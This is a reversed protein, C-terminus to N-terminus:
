SIPLRFTDLLAILAPLRSCGTKEKLRRLHTYITNASLRRARSYASPSQGAHLALALHESLHQVPFAMDFRTGRTSFPVIRGDPTRLDFGDVSTLSAQQVDVVLGTEQHLTPECGALVGVSLLLGLVLATLRGAADGNSPVGPVPNRKMVRDALPRRLWIGVSVLALFLASVWRLASAAAM